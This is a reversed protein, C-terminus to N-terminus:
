CAERDRMTNEASRNSVCTGGESERTTERSISDKEEISLYGTGWAAIKNLQREV